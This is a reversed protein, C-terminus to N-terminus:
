GVYRDETQKILIRKFGLFVWWGAQGVAGCCLVTVVEEGDREGEQRRRRRRKVEGRLGEGGGRFREGGREEGARRKVGRRRREM